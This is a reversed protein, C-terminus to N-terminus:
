DDLVVGKCESKEYIPCSKHYEYPCAVIHPNDCKFYYISVLVVGIFLEGAHYLLAKACIDSTDERCGIM